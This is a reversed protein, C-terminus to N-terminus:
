SQVEYGQPDGALYYGYEHNELDEDHPGKGRELLYSDAAAQSSFVAEVWHLDSFPEGDYAEIIYVKM